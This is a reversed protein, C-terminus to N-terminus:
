FRIKDVYTLLEKSAVSSATSKLIGGIADLCSKVVDKKTRPSGIQARVTDVDAAIEEADAASLDRRLEPLREAYAALFAKVTDAADSSFTGAQVHQSAGASNVQFGSNSVPGYINVVASQAPLNATPRQPERESAEMERVGRPTIEVHMPTRQGTMTRTYTILRRDRLQIVANAAEDDTLGLEERIAWMDVFTETNDGAERYIAAMVRLRDADRKEINSL